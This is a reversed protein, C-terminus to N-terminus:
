AERDDRWPHGTNSYGNSEWYGPRDGELFELRCVWKAGKWAYLQPVVMRVPGGHERSLPRGECTHALLVDPKLAEALPLNTTYGDSGHCLVHTAAERVGAVGALDAFRVGEWRMDLKSWATVCHFDSVDVVQPLDLFDLWGLTQPRECCGDLRLTWSARALSPHHGLDLVPWHGIIRQGPPIRPMGHRNPPGQGLPHPDSRGPTAEMAGRHREILRQTEELHDTRM